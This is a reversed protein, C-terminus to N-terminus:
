FALPKKGNEKNTVDKVTSNIYILLFFPKGQLESRRDNSSFQQSVLSIIVYTGLIGTILVLRLILAIRTRKSKISVGM